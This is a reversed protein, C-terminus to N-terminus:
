VLRHHGHMDHALCLELPKVQIVENLGQTWGCQLPPFQPVSFNLIKDSSVCSAPPTAVSPVRHIHYIFGQCCTQSM